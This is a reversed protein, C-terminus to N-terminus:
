LTKGGALDVAVAEGRVRLLLVPGYGDMTTRGMGRRVEIVGSGTKLGEPTDAKVTLRYRYDPAADVQGEGSAGCAALVLSVLGVLFGSLM